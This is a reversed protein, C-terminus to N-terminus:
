FRPFSYSSYRFSSNSGGSFFCCHLIIFKFSNLMKKPFWRILVNFSFFSSAECWYFPYKILFDSDKFFLTPFCLCSPSPHFLCRHSFKSNIRRINFIIPDVQLLVSTPFSNVHCGWHDLLILIRMAIHSCRKHCTHIWCKVKFCSSYWLYFLVFSKAQLILRFLYMHYLNVWDCIM